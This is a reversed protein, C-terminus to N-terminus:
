LTLGLNLYGLGRFVLTALAPLLVGNLGVGNLVRCFGDFLRSEQDPGQPDDRLAQQHVQESHAQADQKTDRQIKVPTM